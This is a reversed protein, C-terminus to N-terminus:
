QSKLSTGKPARVEGRAIQSRSDHHILNLAIISRAIKLVLIKHVIFANKRIKEKRKKLQSIRNEIKM